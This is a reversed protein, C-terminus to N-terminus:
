NSKFDTAPIEETKTIPIMTSTDDWVMVKVTDINGFVAFTENEKSYVRREIGLLKGEKYTAVIIIPTNEIYNLTVNCLKYTGFNTIETKTYPIIKWVAYLVVDQNESYLDNPMYVAIASDKDKAWGIFKYGERTPVTKSINTVTDYECSDTWSNEIGRNTDYVISYFAREWRAYLTQDSTIQVSSSNTICDGGSSSTYWGMFTYGKRIPTPLDGYTSLYTVSKSPIDVIGGVADFYITYTAPESLEHKLLPYGNNHKGSLDLYWEEYQDSYSNLLDLFANTKLEDNSKQIATGVNNGIGIDYSHNKIFYCGSISIDHSNDGAIGGVNNTQTSFRVSSYIEGANYCNSIPNYTYNIGAIGGVKNESGSEEFAYSTAKISGVNYSNEISGTNEGAIGGIYIKYAIHFEGSTAKATLSIDARNSCNIISGNNYSVIGGACGGNSLDKSLNSINGKNCCNKITGYNYKAIGGVNNATLEAANYSDTILGHNYNVLGGGYFNFSNGENHCNKIIGTDANKNAISGSGSVGVNHCNDIEGSNYGTVGSFLNSNFCDIISGNHNYGAIGGKYPLGQKYGIPNDINIITAVTNHCNNIIGCNYGTIGGAYADRSQTSASLMGTTCCNDIVGSNYGVIGGAYPSYYSSATSFDLKDVGLNKITGKNRSFLGTYGIVDDHNIKIGTIKFGNGDYVGSFSRSENNQEGIPEWGKGDNYYTGDKRTEYTMDIDNSQIYCADLHKRVNNLQISNSVIYPNEPSGDGGSFDSLNEAALVSFEKLSILCVVFLISLVFKRKMKLNGEMFNFLAYGWESNRM